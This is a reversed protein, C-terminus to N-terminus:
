KVTPPSTGAYYLVTTQDAHDGAYTELHKFVTQNNKIVFCAGQQEVDGSNCMCWCKLVGQWCCLWTGLCCDGLHYACSAGPKTKLGYNLGMKKYVSRDNDVFLKFNPPVQSGNGVFTEQISNALGVTGCGILILKTTFFVNSNRWSQLVSV